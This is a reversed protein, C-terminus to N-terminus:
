RQLHMMARSRQWSRMRGWTTSITRSRVHVLIYHLADDLRSWQGDRDLGAERLAIVGPHVDITRALGIFDGVNVTVVIQSHEFAHKWVQIDPRGQLGVYIAASAEIGRENAWSALLPSLNEDILLKM